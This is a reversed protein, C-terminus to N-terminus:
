TNSANMAGAVHTHLSPVFVPLWMCCCCCVPVAPRAAPPSFGGGGRGCVQQAHVAGRGRERKVLTVQEGQRIFPLAPDERTERRSKVKEM